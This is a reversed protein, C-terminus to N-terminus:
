VIREPGKEGGPQALLPASAASLLLASALIRRLSKM